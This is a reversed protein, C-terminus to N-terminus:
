PQTSLSYYRCGRRRGRPADSRSSFRRHQAPVYEGRVDAAIQISAPGIQDRVYVLLEGQQILLSAFTHWMRAQSHFLSSLDRSVAYHSRM